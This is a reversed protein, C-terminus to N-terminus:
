EFDTDEKLDALPQFTLARKKMGLVCASDLTNAFIRGSLSLVSFLEVLM